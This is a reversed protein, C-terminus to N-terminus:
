RMMEQKDIFSYETVDGETYTIIKKLDLHVLGWHYPASYYLEKFGQHLKETFLKMESGNCGAFSFFSFSKMTRFGGVVLM